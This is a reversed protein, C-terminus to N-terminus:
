GAVSARANVNQEAIENLIKDAQGEEDLTAQLMRAVQTLGLQSAWTRVTGYGAMEYHEVRQCAAIIAADRVADEGSANLIESGEEILGKMADCTERKTAVGLLEFIDELRSVQRRTEELHQRLAQKLAPSTAGEAMKPLAEVIRQEADYLDQLEFVLLSELSDLELNTFWGM